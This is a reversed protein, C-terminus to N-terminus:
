QVDKNDLWQRCCGPHRPNARLYALGSRAAASNARAGSGSDSGTFINVMPFLRYALFPPWSSTINEVINTDTNCTTSHWIICKYSVSLIFQM